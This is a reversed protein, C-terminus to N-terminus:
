IIEISECHGAGQTYLIFVGVIVDHITTARTTHNKVSRLVIMRKQFYKPFGMIAKIGYYM